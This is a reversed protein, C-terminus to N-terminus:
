KSVWECCQFIYTFSYNYTSVNLWYLQWHWSLYFSTILIMMYNKLLQVHEFIDSVITFMVFVAFFLKEQYKRWNKILIYCFKLFSLLWYTFCAQLLELNFNKTKVSIHDFFLMTVKHGSQHLYGDIMTFHLRHVCIIPYLQFTNKECYHKLM